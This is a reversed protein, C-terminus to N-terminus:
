TLMSLFLKRIIFNGRMCNVIKRCSKGNDTSAHKKTFLQRDTVTERWNWGDFQKRRKLLFKNLLTVISTTAMTLICRFDVIFVIEWRQVLSWYFKVLFGVVVVKHDSVDVGCWYCWIIAFFFCFRFYLSVSILAANCNLNQFIKRLPNRTNDSQVIKKSAHLFNHLSNQDILHTIIKKLNKRHEIQIFHFIKPIRFDNSNKCKKTQKENSNQM